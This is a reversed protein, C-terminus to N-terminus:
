TSHSAWCYLGVCVSLLLNAVLGCMQLKVRHEMRSVRTILETHDLTVRRYFEIAENPKEDM